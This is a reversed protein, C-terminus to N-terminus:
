SQAFYNELFDDFSEGNSAEIDSQKQISSKAQDEFFKRRKDSLAINQFYRSHSESYRMTFPFFSEGNDRMENLITASPTLDPDRAVEKQLKLADTCNNNDSQTDLIEAVPQMKELIECLWTSLLIDKGNRQLKLNPKRGRHASASQNMDIEQRELTGIPPSEHLLCFVLFTELFNIQQQNIGMPEFINLDLSRLEIYRVGRRKLALSPKEHGETLQKPRVSSYYENEIQLINANLQQYEGNVKVGIKKYQEYPTNIACTLSDVYDSLSDYNAKIGSEGEKFNQYGIDGIRLSTAYPQYYTFEDFSELGVTPGDVFSRCVAPSAGFLYPILWGFRQLNRTLGLYQSSIFAQLPQDDAELDQYAPWFHDALSFNFHIGAIVQMMRGYRHGLGVRYLSKMKGANSSGYYAIPISSNGSVICPMSSAWLLENDLTDYVFRHINELFSLTEQPSGDPPTILELLAESYDTTIYPNTLASGLAMPHSTQSIKGDESVRLSEKELGILRNDFLCEQKNNKFKNLRLELQHYV